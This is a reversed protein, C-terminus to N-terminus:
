WPVLALDNYPVVSGDPDTVRVEDGYRDIVKVRLRHHARDLELRCFNEQQYFGFARYHLTVDGDFLPFGDVQGPLRSDHVFGNPDGDAWFFPWYLASSTVDYLRRPEGGGGEVVMEAINACHVDGSLFIVNDIGAEVIHEVLAKRTAPFGSWSDSEARRSLNTRVLDTPAQADHGDLAPDLREDLPSPAFVTSTVVFKPMAGCRAQQDSLWTLLVDLQSPHQPDISPRGLLHNDMVRNERGYTRHTRTDCVFFPYGGCDFHYHLHRGFSRPCHSWQYSMYAGIAVNFLERKAALRDRHWNDEIEHDDLIMYVPAQRLFHRMQPSGFAQRYRDQFEAFTEARGIPVFRSYQDAYIQDGVLLSFRAAPRSGRRRLHSAMPGFIRDAEKTKWLTGPYRCSGLLFALRPEVAAAFTTFEAECHEGDLDALLSAMGNVDPLRAAIQADSLSEVDPTTDDLTLTAVRVKYRTDPTLPVVGDPQGLPAVGDIAGLGEEAGLEFTGTRDFERHLRFYFAHPRSPDGDILRPLGNDEVVALLGVTRLSATLDVGDDNPAIGRVWLRCSHATTHGVIPGIDPARLGSM